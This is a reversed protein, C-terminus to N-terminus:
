WRSPKKPLPFVGCNKLAKRYAELIGTYIVGDLTTEATSLGVHQLAPARGLREQEPWRSGRTAVYRHYAATSTEFSFEEEGTLRLMTRM